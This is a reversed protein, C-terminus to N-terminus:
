GRFRLGWRREPGAFGTELAVRFRPHAYDARYDLNRRLFEWAVGPSNLDHLYDYASPSRWDAGSM